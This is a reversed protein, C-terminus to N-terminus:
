GARPTSRLIRLADQLHKAAEDKKGLELLAQGLNEHAEADEPLLRTAERFYNVAESQKGQAALVQALKLVTRGDQPDFRVAAALIDAAEDLHSTVALITGLRIRTGNREPALDLVKRFHQVAEGIEGQNMLGAALKERAEIAGPNFAVVKRYHGVAEAIKGRKQLLGATKEHTDWRQPNIEAAKNYAAIADEYKDQSEYLTALSFHAQSTPNVAVANKWLAETDRWVRVQNWTHVGFVVFYIAILVFVVMSSRAGRRVAPALLFRQISGGILLSWSCFTLYTFRDSLVQQAPFDSRLVPLALLLFCIWAAVLAPWRKGVAAVGICLVTSAGIYGAMSWANLEYAPTLGIPLVSKWLYFAPAALSYLVWTVIGDQGSSQHVSEYHRAIFNITLGASALAFYPAKKWLHFRVNAWPRTQGDFRRGLPYTDLVLLIFPLVVGILSALLSIFFAGVSLIDWRMLSGRANARENARLYGFLSLLFFSAGVLDGRISAWAVSEVRLPHIAFVLAAIGAAIRVRPEDPWSERTEPYALLQLSIRYFLLVNVVHLFLNTWHYGFPDTAWFVHDLGFTMGTLPQYHGFQFAAFIWRVESWGFGRYGLNEVITKIDADVFGNRLVPLFVGLTILGLLTPFFSQGLEIIPHSSSLPAPTESPGSQM